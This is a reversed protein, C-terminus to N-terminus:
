DPFKQICGRISSIVGQHVTTLRVTATIEHNTLTTM